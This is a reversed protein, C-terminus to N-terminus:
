APRVYAQLFVEPLLDEDGDPARQYGRSAYFRALGEVGRRIHLGIARAGAERLRREADDLLRGSVGRGRWDPACALLRLNAIDPRWLEFGPTGAPFASITGIVRGAAEAVLVIGAARRRAVDRLEAKRRDSVQVHPMKAAYTTVFADVLLEGLDADDGAEALRVGFPESAEPRVAAGLRSM